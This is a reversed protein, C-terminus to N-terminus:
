GIGTESFHGNLFYEIEFNEKCVTFLLQPVSYKTVVM